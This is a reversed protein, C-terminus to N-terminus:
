GPVPLPPRLAVTDGIYTIDFFDVTSMSVVQVTYVGVALTLRWHYLCVVGTVCM